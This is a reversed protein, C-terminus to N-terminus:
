ANWEFRITDTNQFNAYNCTQGCTEKIVQRPIFCEFRHMYSVQSGIYIIYVHM